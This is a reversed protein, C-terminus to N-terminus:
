HSSKLDKLANADLKGNGKKSLNVGFISYYFFYFLFHYVVIGRRM